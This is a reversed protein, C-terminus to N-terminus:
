IFPNEVSSINFTNRKKNYITIYLVIIAAIIGLSAPVLQLKSTYTDENKEECTKLDEYNLYLYIFLLILVIVRNLVAIDDAENDSFLRKKNLVKQRANFTLLISVIVTGIFLISTIMQYTLTDEEKM